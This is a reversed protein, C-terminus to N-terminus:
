GQLHSSRLPAPVCTLSSGVPCALFPVELFHFWCHSLLLSEAQTQHQPCKCSPAQTWCVLGWRSSQLHRCTRIEGAACSVPSLQMIPLKIIKRKWLCQESSWPFSSSISLDLPMHTSPSFHMYPKAPFHLPFLGLSWKSFKSSMLTSQLSIPHSSTSQIQSAWSSSLHCAAQLLCQINM